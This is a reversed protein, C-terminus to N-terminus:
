YIALTGLTGLTCRLFCALLVDVTDGDEEEEDDDDDDDDDDDRVVVVSSMLVMDRLDLERRIDGLNAGMAARLIRYSPQDKLVFKWRTQLM